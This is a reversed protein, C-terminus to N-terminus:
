LAPLQRSVRVFFCHLPSIQTKGLPGVNLINKMTLSPSLALSVICALINYNSGFRLVCCLGSAGSPCLGGLGPKEFCKKSFRTMYNQGFLSLLQTTMVSKYLVKKEGNLIIWYTNGSYYKGHSRAAGRGRKQKPTQICLPM